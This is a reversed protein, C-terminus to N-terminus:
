DWSLISYWARPCISPETRISTPTMRAMLYLRPTTANAQNYQADAIITKTNQKTIMSSLNALGRESHNGHFTSILHSKQFRVRLDASGKMSVIAMAPIKRLISTM